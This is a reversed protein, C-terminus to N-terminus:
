EDIDFLNGPNLMMEPDFLKKLARMQAVGEEGYMLELFPTKIKGIGHEASISGGLALVHKGWSAYLSKGLVFEEMDNPLINIHLHNDSIHGFIVSDLKSEKLGANYMELTSELASKPVSMDTGLKSLQNFIKKRKGILLNVAEPTAHRFAKLTELERDSDAYWTDKDSAGLKTMVEMVQAMSKEIANESDAHLEIYVATHSDPRLAPINAFAANTSKARRLLNLANSNFFEIAVPNPNVLPIGEVQEGRMARVFKLAISESPLFATLAVIANPKPILRLEAKTIIGLTGEMGIFMDLLDMDDAAYYGASSKVNPMTYSPLEGSIAQGYGTSISFTRGQARYEGRRLSLTLGNSLVVRISHIWKRTPGYFHSVAGSANCAIMGGISASAETPDPPFFFGEKEVFKRIDTLLAGPQVTLIYEGSREDRRIPGIENMRSLNLIHGGDPVAGAALGTLAGQTTITSGRGHIAKVTEVVEIETKPFSISDAAGVRRSEDHLYEQYEGSWPIIMNIM